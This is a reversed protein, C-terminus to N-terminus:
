RPILTTSDHLHFLQHFPQSRLFLTPSYTYNVFLFCPLSLHCVSHKWKDQVSQLQIHILSTGEQWVKGACYSSNKNSTWQISTTCQSHNQICLTPVILSGRSFRPIAPHSLGPKDDSHLGYQHLPDACAAVNTQFTPARFKRPLTPTGRINSSAPYNDKRESTTFNVVFVELLGMVHNVIKLWLEEGVSARQSLYLYINDKDGFQLWIPKTNVHDRSSIRIVRNKFSSSRIDDMYACSDQDVTFYALFAPSLYNQIAVVTGGIEKSDKSQKLHVGEVHAPGSAENMAEFRGAVEPVHFPVKAGALEDLYVGADKLVSELHKPFHCMASLELDDDTLTNRDPGQQNWAAGSAATFFPHNRGGLKSFSFALSSVIRSRIVSLSPLEIPNKQSRSFIGLIANMYTKPLGQTAYSQIEEKRPHKLHDLVFNITAHAQIVLNERLKLQQSRTHEVVQFQYPVYNVPGGLNFEFDSFPEVVFTNFDEFTVDISADNHCIMSRFLAPVPGYPQLYHNLLQCLRNQNAPTRRTNRAIKLAEDLIACCDSQSGVPPFSEVEKVIPLLYQDQMHASQTKQLDLLAENQRQNAEVLDAIKLNQSKNLDNAEDLKHYVAGMAEHQRAQNQSVAQLQALHVAESSRQPVQNMHPPMVEEKEMNM